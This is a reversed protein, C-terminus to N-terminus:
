IFTIKFIEVETRVETSYMSSGAMVYFPTKIDSIDLEFTGMTNNYRVDCQRMMPNVYDRVTHLGFFARSINSTMSTSCVCLLKNVGSPKSIKNVTSWIGVTDRGGSVRLSNATKMGQPSNQFTDFRWGGTVELCEDGNEYLVNNQRNFLVKNVGGIGAYAKDIQRIVGGVGCNLAKVKRVAGGTGAYMTM